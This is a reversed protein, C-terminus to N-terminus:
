VVRKNLYSKLFDGWLTQKSFNTKLYSRHASHVPYYMSVGCAHKFLRGAVNAFVVRSLTKAGNDLHRILSHLTRVYLRQKSSTTGKVEKLLGKKLASYFSLMDIFDRVDFKLSRRRANNIIKALKVRHKKPINIFFSILTQLHEGLGSLMTLDLASQTYFVYRSKYLSNFSSVIKKALERPQFQKPTKALPILFDKYNWGQGPESNQSSVLINAADKVQYGIEIMSMLCADMGVIDIKKGIINKMRDLARGMQQNNLFKKSTDSYLIGRELCHPQCLMELWSNKFLSSYPTDHLFQRYKETIGSGHNWFVFMYHEAAFDKAAWRMSDVVDDELSSKKLNKGYKINIIKNHRIHHRTINLKKPHVWQVLVNVDDGYEAKKMDNMNKTAYNALNNDAQVYVVITWLGKNESEREVVKAHKSFLNFGSLM